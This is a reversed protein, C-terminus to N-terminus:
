NDKVTLQSVTRSDTSFAIIPTQPRFRAVSRATFGTGSICILASLDLENSVRWAAMTLADTVTTGATQSSSSPWRTTTM